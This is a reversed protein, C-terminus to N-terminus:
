VICEIPVVCSIRYVLRKADICNSMEMFYSYKGFSIQLMDLKDGYKCGAGATLSKAVYVHCTAFPSVSAAWRLSVNSM